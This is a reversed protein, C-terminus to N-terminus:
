PSLNFFQHLIVTMRQQRDVLKHHHGDDYDQRTPKHDVVPMTSCVPRGFMLTAPSPLGQGIPTTCIQLLTMNIDGGANACKKFTCKIFKICAKVQGNSQHHYVSFVAQEVNISKCFQCFMDSVFNTSTDSM